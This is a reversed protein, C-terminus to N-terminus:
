SIFPQTSREMSPLEVITLQNGWVCGTDICLHNPGQSWGLSSWHGFIVKRNGMMSSSLGEFWAQGGEPPTSPDNDHAFILRTCSLSIFRIRLFTNLCFMVRHEDSMGESWEVYAHGREYFSKLFDVFYPGALMQSLEQAYSYADYITWMPCIGAHVLFFHEDMFAIPRTRLWDVCDCKHRFSIVDSLTHSYKETVGSILALAYLDHNGLVAVVSDGWGMLTRLVSLSDPGRNVVDGVCWLKDVDPNFDVKELLAMFSRYCGHIDGVAFVRSCHM